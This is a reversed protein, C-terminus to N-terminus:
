QYVVEVTIKSMIINTKSFCYLRYKKLLITPSHKDADCWAEISHRRQDFYKCQDHCGEKCNKNHHSALFLFTQISEESIHVATQSM